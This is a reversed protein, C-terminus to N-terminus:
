LCRLDADEKLKKAGEMANRYRWDPSVADIFYRFRRKATAFKQFIERENGKEKENTETQCNTERM